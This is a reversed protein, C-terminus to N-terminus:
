SRHHNTGRSPIIFDPKQGAILQLSSVLQGLRVAYGHYGGISGLSDQFSYLDFIKGDGYILDGVFAFRKRDIDMIYSVSGRTYGPTNLVKIDIDQWKLIEGGKVSRHVKFPIIGIKTTQCYYDHFRTQAFKTWISDGRTFYSKEGAPVVALSGNQVLNRGQGSWM